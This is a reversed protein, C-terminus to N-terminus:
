GHKERYQTLVTPFWAWSRDPAKGANSMARLSQCLPEIGGAAQLSRSIIEDDPKGPLKAALPYDSIWRRAAEHDAVQKEMTARATSGNAKRPSAVALQHIASKLEAATPPPPEEFCLSASSEAETETETEPPTESVNRFRKMRHKRVRESVNDSSYQHEGWDHPIFSTGDNQPDLLLREVLADVWSQAQKVSCRLRFSIDVVSTLRGDALRALCLINVWAKFLTPPLDQIKRCELTGVYYRFWEM